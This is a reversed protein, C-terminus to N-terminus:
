ETKQNIRRPVIVITLGMGALLFLLLLNRWIPTEGTQPLSAIIAGTACEEIQQNDAFVCATNNVEVGDLVTTFISFQVTQGVNLTTYTVSVTQGNISVNAGPAEVSDVRLADILTDTVVVNNGAVNGTNSVTVIWELQEGTVGTQGPVLLGLKSIAPDFIEIDPASVSSSTSASRAVLVLTDIAPNETVGLGAITGTVSSTTNLYSGQMAGAPVQLIVTFTCSTGAALTGGTFSLLNTGAIQSGAGCIDNLPLGTAVLGALTTSLDDTFAIGTADNILDGNTITFELTVTDGASVPDDTFTKGIGLTNIVSLTDNAAGSNGSSSTLNNTTNMYTGSASATVDVSVTCTSGAAATGGTYTIVGTGATATLTGGTCTTSANAPTAVIVGAPLNDTFDLGTVAIASGTNDITFTLTSIAGMAIPDPAFVKNFIPPVVDVITVTQNGNGFITAAGQLSFSVTLTEDGEILADALGTITFDQTGNANFTLSATITYDTDQTATGGSINALVTISDGPALDTVTVPITATGGTEIIDTASVTGVTVNPITGAFEFAGIDCDSVEPDDVAGIGNEGRAAGRQDSAPCNANNAADIAPSNPVLAHTQTPGGNNGLSALITAIDGAPVIDNVGAPCDGSDGGTGFINNTGATLPRDAFCEDNTGNAANGAIISNTLILNFGYYIGGGDDGATNNSITSNIISLDDDAYIGGGDNTATNGSITSNTVMVTNNDIYIGGGVIATNDSITSNTISLDGSTFNRIGGGYGVTFLDTSNGSITSNIISLDGRNYIGGGEYEVTNGSITSNNVTLTGANFIGGGLDATGDSVTLNNLSLNAGSAIEIIRFDSASARNITFGNGNIILSNGGDATIVPLGNNGDTGVNDIATLTINASLTILDAEGNANATNIAAILSAADNVTFDAAQTKQVPVIFLFM